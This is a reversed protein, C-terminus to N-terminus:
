AAKIAEETAMKRLAFAEASARRAEERVRKLFEDVLSHVYAERDFTKLNRNDPRQYPVGDFTEEKKGDAANWVIHFTPRCEHCMLPQFFTVRILEIRAALDPHLRDRIMMACGFILELLERTPRDPKIHESLGRNSSQDGITIKM